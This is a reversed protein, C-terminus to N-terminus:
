CLMNLITDVTSFISLNLTKLPEFNFLASHLRKMTLFEVGNQLSWKELFPFFLELTAVKM